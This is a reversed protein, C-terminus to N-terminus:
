ACVRPFRTSTSRSQNVKAIAITSKTSTCLMVVLGTIPYRSLRKRRGVSLPISVLRHGSFHSAPTGASRPIATLKGAPERSARLNQLLKNWPERQNGWASQMVISRLQRETITCVYYRYRRNEKSSNALGICIRVRLSSDATRASRRRFAGRDFFVPQISSHKPKNRSAPLRSQGVECQRPRPPDRADADEPAPHPPWLSGALLLAATTPRPSAVPDPPRSPLVRQEPRSLDRDTQQTGSNLSSPAGSDRNVSRLRKRV